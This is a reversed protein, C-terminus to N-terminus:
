IQYLEIVEGAPTDDNIYYIINNDENFYMINGYNSIYENVLTNKDTSAKPYVQTRTGYDEEIVYIKM